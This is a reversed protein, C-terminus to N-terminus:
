HTAPNGHSQDLVTINLKGLLLAVQLQEILEGRLLRIHTLDAPWQDASPDLSFWQHDLCIENWARYSFTGQDLAVGIAVTAPIGLSRALAAFLAAHGNSDGRKTRLTTLADALGLVPRNEINRHVWEALLRAQKHPNTEKGVIRGAQSTIEVHDAPLYRSPALDANPHCQNNSAAREPLERRITLLDGTRQQRGGDLQLAHNAPLTLRYTIQEAGAEPLRGTAPIAVPSTLPDEPTTLQHAQSATEALLVFGGPSIEKITKGRDNLWYQVETGDFTEVFRFLNHIRRNLELKERGAYRVISLRPTLSLPDFLTLTGKDGPNPLQHLLQARRNLPLQPPATLPIIKTTPNQGTNLTLHLEAGQVRGSAEMRYFASTFRFVFSQLHMSTSLEGNLEMRIPETAAGFQVQLNAEQRVQIRDADIPEYREVTSGIRKQQFWIGYYQEEKAQTLTLAERTDIKPVLIDRKILLGCLILWVLVLLPKLLTRAPPLTFPQM